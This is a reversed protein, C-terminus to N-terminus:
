PSLTASQGLVHGSADIAQVAVAKPASALPIATELGM